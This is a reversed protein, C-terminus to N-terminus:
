LILIHSAEKPPEALFEMLKKEKKREHEEMRARAEENSKIKKQEECKQQELEEESRKQAELASRISDQNEKERRKEEKRANEAAEQNKMEFRHIADEIATYRYNVNEPPFRPEDGDDDDNTSSADPAVLGDLGTDFSYTALVQKQEFDLIAAKLEQATQELNSM